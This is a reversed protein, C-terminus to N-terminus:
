LKKISKVLKPQFVDLFLFRKASPDRPTKLDECGYGQRGERFGAAFALEGATLHLV